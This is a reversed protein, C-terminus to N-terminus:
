KTKAMLEALASEIEAFVGRWDGASKQRFLRITPYWPSDSRQLLWRWDPVSKVAVWAPVGLAGALHAAATDVSIVLDVVKMVAATDLFASEGEDFGDGLCEVKVGEPPEALPEGAQGKQLSILRVGPTQALRRFEALPASRGVSAGFASGLWAVGIRFGPGRLRSAWREVRQPDASLYPGGAPISHLATKFALPLSMLPCHFDFALSADDADVIEISESLSRMLARLAKQPAFLVRAGAQELLKLYRCAQITDGLGQEWHVLITKGSPDREGTWILDKPFKTPGGLNSSPVEQVGLLFYCCSVSM